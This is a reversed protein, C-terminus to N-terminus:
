GQATRGGSGVSSGGFHGFVVGDKEVEGAFAADDEAAAGDGLAFDGGQAVGAGLDGDDAGLGGGADLAGGLAAVDGVQGAFVLGAVQVAGEDGDGGGVDPM